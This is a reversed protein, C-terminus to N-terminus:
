AGLKQASAAAVRDKIAALQRASERRFWRALTIIMPQTAFQASTSSTTM